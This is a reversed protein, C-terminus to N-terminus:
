PTPSPRAATIWARAAAEDTFVATRMFKETLVQVQRATGYQAPTSVLLAATWGTLTPQVASRVLDSLTAGAIRIECERADAISRGCAIAQKDNLLTRMYETVDQATIVGTWRAFVVALSADVKYTIPM